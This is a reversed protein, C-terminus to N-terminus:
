RVSVKAPIRTEVLGSRDHVFVITDTGKAASAKAFKVAEPKSPKIRLARRSEPKVVAWGSGHSVVHIQQIKPIADVFEAKAPVLNGDGSVRVGSKRKSTTAINSLAVSCRRRKIGTSIRPMSGSEGPCRQFELVFSARASDPVAVVVASDAADLM